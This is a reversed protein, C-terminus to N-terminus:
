QQLWKIEKLGYTTKQYTEKLQLRGWDDVGSVEARFVRGNSEFRATKQFMYLHELYRMKIVNVEDVAKLLMKSLDKIFEFLVDRVVFTQATELLLSTANPLDYFNSQNINIGVGIISQHSINGSFASEILIGAIKKGNVYIDNPWKIYTNSCYKNIVDCLSLSVCQNLLFQNECPLHTNLLLSAYLNEDPNGKWENGMLGRGKTQYGAYIVNGHQITKQEVRTKTEQNTSDVIPLYEYIPLFPLDGFITHKM